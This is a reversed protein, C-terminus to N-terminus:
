SSPEESAPKRELRKAAFGGALAILIGAGGLLGGPVNKDNLALAVAGILTLLVIILCGIILIRRDVSASNRASVESDVLKADCEHRHEQEKETLAFAREAGNEVVEGYGRLFQPHPFAGSYRESMLVRAALREGTVPEGDEVDHMVEALRELTSDKGDQAGDPVKGGNEDVDM